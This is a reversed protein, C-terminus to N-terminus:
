LRITRNRKTYFKKLYMGLIAGVFLGGLHAGHAIGSPVFLGFFEIVAYISAAFIMPMPISGYFYVAAFPDLLALAGLIGYVAGSAGIGPTYPNGATFIYGFNGAIGSIFYISLYQLPTVRRELYLGFFFLAFMNFFIHKFDAHLFMSTVFTYPREFATAPVFAFNLIGPFVFQLFFILFNIGILLFTLPVRNM